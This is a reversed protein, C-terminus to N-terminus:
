IAGHEEAGHSHPTKLLAPKGDPQSILWHCQFCVRINQTPCDIPGMPDARHSTADQDRPKLPPM